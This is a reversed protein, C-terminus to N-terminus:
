RFAKHEKKQLMIVTCRIYHLLVNPFQTANLEWNHLFNHPKEKWCINHCYVCQKGGVSWFLKWWARAQAILIKFRLISAPLSGCKNYMWNITKLCKTYIDLIQQWHTWIKELTITMKHKRKKKSYDNGQMLKESFSSTWGWTNDVHRM